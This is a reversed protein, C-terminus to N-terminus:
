SRIPVNYLKTNIEEQQGGVITMTITVDKGTLKLRQAVDTRILSIQAGPDM